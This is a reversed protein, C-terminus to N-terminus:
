KKFFKIKKGLIETGNGEEGSSLRGNLRFMISCIINSGRVRKEVHYEERFGKFERGREVVLSEEGFSKIVGGGPTPHPVKYVGSLSLAFLLIM